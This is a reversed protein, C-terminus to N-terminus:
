AKKIIWLPASWQVRGKPTMISHGVGKSAAGITGRTSPSFPQAPVTRRCDIIYQENESILDPLRDMIDPQSGEKKIRKLFSM